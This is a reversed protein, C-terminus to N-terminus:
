DPSEGPSAPEAPQCPVIDGFAVLVDRAIGAPCYVSHLDGKCWIANEGEHHLNMCGTESILLLAKKYVQVRIPEM